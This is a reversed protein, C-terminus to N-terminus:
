ANTAINAAEKWFQRVKDTGAQRDDGIAAIRRDYPGGNAALWV